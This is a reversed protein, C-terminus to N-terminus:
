RWFLEGALDHLEDGVLEDTAKEQVGQWVAEVADAVEAEHGIATAGCLEGQTPGSKEFPDLASRSGRGEVLSRRRLGVDVRRTGRICPPTIRMTAVSGARQLDLSELRNAMGTRYTMLAALIGIFAVLGMQQALATSRSASASM